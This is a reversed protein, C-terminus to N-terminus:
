ELDLLKRLAGTLDLLDGVQLDLAGSYIENHDRATIEWTGEVPAHHDAPLVLVIEQEDFVYEERPRLEGVDLRLDVSGSNHWNLPSRYTSPTYNNPLYAGQSMHLGADFMPRSVLGWIRPPTPLDLDSRDIRDNDFYDIGRVAGELHIKVEVDHFFTKTANKVRITIGQLLRGSLTDIANPWKRRLQTEWNSISERYQEETRKEPETKLMSSVVSSQTKSLEAAMEALASMQPNLIDALAASAVGSGNPHSKFGRGATTTVDPSSIEFKPVPEPAPQPLASVLQQTVRIIHAELTRAIDVEILRPVQDIAVEFAVEPVTQQKGRQLLLEIEDAKADRTAGDARIYIAGDSLGEGNKRCLFPDQGVKPPDVVIILVENASGEVPVRLLDWHPGGAGIIQSAIKDIELIEIPPVGRANGPAVGIVMVGYGEFAHAAVAPMRNASGLIYKAIKAIDTKKTLDLDSKIELYHREVRDDGAAVAAVLRAAVLEGRPARLLDLPHSM